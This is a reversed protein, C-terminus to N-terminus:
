GMEETQRPGMRTTGSTLLKRGQDNHSDGSGLWVLESEGQTEKLVAPHEPGQIQLTQSFIQVVEKEDDRSSRLKGIEDRLEKRPSFFPGGGACVEQLCHAWRGCCGWGWGWRSAGPVGAAGPQLATDEMPLKMQALVRINYPRISWRSSPRM